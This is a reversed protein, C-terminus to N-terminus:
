GFATLKRWPPELEYVLHPRLPSGEPVRSHEFDLAPARWMGLRDMVARSRGNAAVVMAVIRELGLPGFGHSVAARAAEGAFGRGWAHRALRWGIEVEGEVPSPHDVLALGTFGLFAGDEKREIAWLGFGHRDFHPELRGDIMADSEERSLLAPFYRMVEPDRGMAAFPARDEERWRRLVLRSTEIM